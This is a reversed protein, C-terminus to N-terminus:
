SPKSVSKTVAVEAVTQLIMQIISFCLLECDDICALQGTVEEIMSPVRHGLFEKM